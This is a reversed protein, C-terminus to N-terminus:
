IKIFNNFLNGISKATSYYATEENILDNLEKIIFQRIFSNNTARYQQILDFIKSFIRGRADKLEKRNLEIHNITIDGRSTINVVINSSYYLHLDPDDFSPDIIPNQNDWKDAKIRNCVECCLHLNEWSFHLNHFLSKPKLHEIRGYTIAPDIFGECYCCYNKYMKKLSETIDKQKYKNKFRKEVKNYNGTKNIEDLLMNTWKVSRKKLSEPIDPRSVRRM